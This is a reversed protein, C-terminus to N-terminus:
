WSTPPLPEFLCSESFGENFLLVADRNRARQCAIQAESMRSKMIAYQDDIAKVSLAQDPTAVRGWDSKPQWPEIKYVFGEIPLPEIAKEPLIKAVVPALAAGVIAKFFGRRTM